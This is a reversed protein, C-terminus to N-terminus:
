GGAVDYGLRRSVEAAARKLRVALSPFVGPTVRYAPGSVTAVAIVAGVRDYVPAAVANLGAEWEEIVTAYGQAKVDDLVQRLVAPDIVTKPTYRVLPVQLQPELQDPSMNALFVKGSATAHMDMPRGVHVVNKIQYNPPEFQEVTVVKGAEAVSLSVTEQAEYALDRLIPRAIERISSHLVVRSALALIEVGLRYRGSRADQSLLGGDALSRALRSVTSKHLGLRRSLESVGREPRELTFSKLIAIARDVSQISSKSDSMSM